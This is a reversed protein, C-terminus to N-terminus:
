RKLRELHEAHDTEKAPIDELRVLIAHNLEGAIIAKDVADPLRGCSTLSYRVLLWRIDSCRECMTRDDRIIAM